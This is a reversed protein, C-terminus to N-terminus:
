ADRKFQLDLTPITGGTGPVQSKPHYYAYLVFSDEGAHFEFGILFEKEKEVTGTAELVQEFSVGGAGYEEAAATGKWDKYQTQAEFVLMAILRESFAVM